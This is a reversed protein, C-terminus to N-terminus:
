LVRLLVLHGCGAARRGLRHRLVLRNHLRGSRLWRYVTESNLGLLTAVEDTSYTLPETM